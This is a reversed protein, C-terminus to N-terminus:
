TFAVSFQVQYVGTVKRKRCLKKVNGSDMTKKKNM